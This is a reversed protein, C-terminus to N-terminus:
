WRKQLDRRPVGVIVDKMRRVRMRIKEKGFGRVVVVKMVMVAM